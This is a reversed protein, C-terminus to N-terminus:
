LLSFRDLPQATSHRCSLFTRYASNRLVPGLSWIPLHRSPTSASQDLSGSGGAQVGVPIRARTPTTPWNIPSPAHMSCQLTQNTPQMTHQPQEKSGTRRRPACRRHDEPNKVPQEPQRCRRPLSGRVQRIKPSDQFSYPSRTERCKPRAGLSGPARRRKTVEFHRRWALEHDLSAQDFNHTRCKPM